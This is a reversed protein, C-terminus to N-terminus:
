NKDIGRLIAATFAGLSFMAYFIRNQRNSSPTHFFLYAGYTGIGGFTGVGILKCSLCDTSGVKSEIGKESM